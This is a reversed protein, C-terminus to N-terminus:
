LPQEKVPPAQPPSQPRSQMPSHPQAQQRTHQPAPLHSTHQLSVPQHQLQPTYKGWEVGCYWLFGGDAMVVVVFGDVMV